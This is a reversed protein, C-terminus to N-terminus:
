LQKIQLKHVLQHSKIYIKLSSFSNKLQKRMDNFDDSSITFTRLTEWAYTKKKDIATPLNSRTAFPQNSYNMLLRNLTSHNWIHSNGCKLFDLSYVVIRLVAVERESCRTVCGSTSVACSNVISRVWCRPM